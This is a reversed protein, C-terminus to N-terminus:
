EALVATMIPSSQNPLSSYNSGFNVFGGFAVTQAIALAYGNPPSSLNIVSLQANPFYMAGQLTTTNSLAYINNGNLMAPQTDGPDQFM